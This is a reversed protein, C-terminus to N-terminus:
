LTSKPILCTGLNFSLNLTNGKTNLVPIIQINLHHSLIDNEYTIEDLIESLIIDRTSDTMPELLHKQLIPKCKDYVGMLLNLVKNLEM